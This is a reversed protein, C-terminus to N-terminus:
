AQKNSSSALSTRIRICAHGLCLTISNRPTALSKQCPISTLCYISSSRFEQSLSHLRALYLPSLDPQSQYSKISTVIEDLPPNFHGSMSIAFSLIIYDISKLPERWLFLFLQQFLYFRYNSPPYSIRLPRLM